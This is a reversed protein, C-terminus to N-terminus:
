GPPVTTSAAPDVTTVTPDVTTEPPLTSPPITTPPPPVEFTIDIATGRPFSVNAGISVGDVEALVAFGAPDGKVEGLVLGAAQLAASAQEVTLDALPPVVVLDQGKSLVVTVTGGAPVTSGPAPDQRMVMGAAITDSFEDPLQAVVLGAAEIAATAQELSTGTFDPVTRPAPGASAVVVVVTGPVVTDGAVLGPQSPVSWSLITGVPETESFQPDGVQLVLGLEALTATAQDVTAGVLEPLARPAPGKSAVIAFAKGEGLKAGAPPDTRIVAGAAVTDSSEETVTTEWGFESIQNLAEAQQLGVLDPVTHKPDHGIWWAIGGGIGAALLVVLMVALLKRRSRPERLIPASIDPQPPPPVAPVASTTDVDPPEVGTGVAPEVSPAPVAPATAAPATSSRDARDVDIVPLAIPAERTPEAPDAVFELAGPVDPEAASPAPAPAVIPVQGSPPEFPTSFPADPMTFGHEPRQLAVTPDSDVIVSEGNSWTPAAPLLPVPSEVAIPATTDAFLGSGPLVIPAPRPLKEAAQVLGRGFEAATSRDAPDPRGARELVAALPGFDASVPMLRDIRNQLTMVSSDGVFPLHGTLLEILTLCLSYVDSKAETPKGAAREPSAYRARDINIHSPEAWLPETVLRSLGLDVIRLTGDDGFVLTSPRIDGHVVGLRHAIDLGRCADLGIVVIQSPSLQRGRDLLDRVSGGSLVDTVVFEVPRGNWDARGWDLVRGVNPHDISAVRQLMARFQEDFGPAACLDPHVIKVVVARGLGLDTADFVAVDIGAGRRAALRYRGALVRDSSTGEHVTM